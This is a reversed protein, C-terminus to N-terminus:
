LSGGVRISYDSIGRLDHDGYGAVGEASKQLIEEVYIKV